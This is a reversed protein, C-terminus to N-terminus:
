ERPSGSFAQKNLMLSFLLFHENHKHYTFYYYLYKYLQMFCDLILQFKNAQVAM